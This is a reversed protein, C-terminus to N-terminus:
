KKEYVKAAINDKSNSNTIVSTPAQGSRLSFTQRTLIITDARKGIAETVKLNGYERELLKYFDREDRGVVLDVTHGSHKNVAKKILEFDLSRGYVVNSDYLNADIYRDHNTIVLGGILITLPVLGFLRAYPNFPFLSYWGEILTQIGIAILFIVPVFFIYTQSNNLIALLLTLGTICLILYSRASHRDRILRVIGITVIALEAFSILPTVLGFVATSHFSVLAGLNTLIQQASLAFGNAGLLTFLIAPDSIIALVLPLLLLGGVVGAIIFQLVKFGRVALRARPHLVAALIYAIFLYIGLPSYVGLTLALVLIIQWLTKAKEGAMYKSIAFIALIGLFIMMSMPAGTRAIDLFFVSSAVVFGTIIAVNTRFLSRVTAIILLGSAIALIISPLRIAFTSLTFIQISLWQLAHYPLDVISGPFSFNGSLTASTIELESLGVPIRAFGFVIFYYLFIAAVFLGIVHRHRYFVSSTILNKV